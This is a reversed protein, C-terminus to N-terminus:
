SWIEEYDQISKMKWIFSEEDHKELLEEDKDTFEKKESYGRDDPISNLPGWYNKPILGKPCYPNEPLSDINCDILESNETVLWYHNWSFDSDQYYYKADGEIIRSKIGEKKLINKVLIAFQLCMDSRGSWNEDIYKASIDIISKRKEVSLLNSKDFIQQSPKPRSNEEKQRDIEIIKEFVEDISSDQKPMNMIKQFEEFSPVITEEKFLSDIIDKGSAVQPYHCHKYKKESGCWCPANRSLKAM